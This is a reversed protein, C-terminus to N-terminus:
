KTRRNKRTLRRAKTGRAPGGPGKLLLYDGGGCDASRFGFHVGKGHSHTRDCYPCEVVYRSATEVIVTAGLIESEVLGSM